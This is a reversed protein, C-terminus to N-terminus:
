PAGGGGAGGGAEVVATELDKAKGGAGAAAVSERDAAGLRRRPRARPYAYNTHLRIWGDRARYNGAIPDWLEPRPWGVPTFVGEAAFAACAARTDVTVRGPAGGRRAALLRAAALTAAAVSGTPLGTVDCCSRLVAGPGNVTLAGSDPREALDARDPGTADPSALQAGRAARAVLAYAATLESM